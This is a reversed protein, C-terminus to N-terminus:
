GALRSIRNVPVEVAEDEARYRYQMLYADETPFQRLLRGEHNLLPALRFGLGSLLLMVILLKFGASMKLQVAKREPRLTSPVSQEAQNIM